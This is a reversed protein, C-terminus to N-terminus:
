SRRIKYKLMNIFIKIGDIVTTGKYEDHYITEIPVQAYKLKHKAVKSIMETEMSYDNSYWKIKNYAESTMCRFGSQTDNISIGNIFKSSTNIGWNGIRMMLPMNKNLQRYGFVIDNNKLADLMKKLDEPKHQGDADMLVLIDAGNNIAYDCGTKAASGKGLNVIHRLVKAGAKKAMESSKDHSGDDIFLINEFGLKRTRAVVEGIHKEENLGPIIIFIKQKKTKKNKKM